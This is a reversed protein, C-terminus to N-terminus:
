EKNIFMETTKKLWQEITLGDKDALKKWIADRKKVHEPYDPHANCWAQLEDPTMDLNTM